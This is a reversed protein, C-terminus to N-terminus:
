DNINLKYYNIFAVPIFIVWMYDFKGIYPNTASAILFTTFGVLIYIMYYSLNIGKKIILIGNKYIWVIGFVYISFGLIGMNHLISLYYLEYAWPMETSRTLETGAGLGHGILPSELWSNTLSFFQLRRVSASADNKFDFGAFFDTIINSLNINTLFSIGLIFIIILLTGYILLSKFKITYKKKAFPLFSKFYLTIIPSLLIVLYLANRRNIISIFLTFILLLVLNSNKLLFNVRSQSLLKAILYPISFFLTPLASFAIALSKGKPSYTLNEGFLNIFYSDPIIKLVFLIVWTAYISIFLNSLLILKNLNEIHEFKTILSLLLTFLMPYIVHVTSVRLAGPTNMIYGYIVWLFGMITYIISLIIVDLSFATKKKLVIYTILLITLVLKLTKFSVPVVIMLFFLFYGINELKIKM